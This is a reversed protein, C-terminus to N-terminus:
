QTMHMFSLITHKQHPHKPSHISTELTWLDAKKFTNLYAPLIICKRIM